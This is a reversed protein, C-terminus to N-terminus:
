RISCNCFKGNIVANVPSPVTGAPCGSASVVLPSLNNTITIKHTTKDAIIITQSTSYQPSEYTYGKPAVPTRETVVCTKGAPILNSQFPVNHKISIVQDYTTSAGDCDIDVTFSQSDTGGTVNKTVEIRGQPVVVSAGIWIRYGVSVIKQNASYKTNRSSQNAVSADDWASAGLLVTSNKNSDNFTSEHRNGSVDYLGWPNNREQGVQAWRAGGGWQTLSNSLLAQKSNSGGSYLGSEGDISPAYAPPTDTGNPYNTFRANSKNWYMAKKLEAETALRAGAYTKDFSAIASNGLTGSFTYAGKYMDGTALWNMYHAVQNLSLGDIPLNGAESADFVMSGNHYTSKVRWKSGSYEYAMWGARSQPPTNTDYGYDSVLGKGSPDNKAVSNLFAVWDNVTLQTRSVKFEYDVGGKGADGITVMDSLSAARTIFPAMLLILGVIWCALNLVRKNM